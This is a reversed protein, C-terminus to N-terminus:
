NPQMKFYKSQDEEPAEEMDSELPIRFKLKPDYEQKLELKKERKKQGKLFYEILFIRGKRNGNQCIDPQTKQLENLIRTVTKEESAMGLANSIDTISHAPKQMGFRESGELVQMIGERM